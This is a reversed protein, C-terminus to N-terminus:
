FKVVSWHSGGDTTRWLQRSNNLIPIAFGDKANTFGVFSWV